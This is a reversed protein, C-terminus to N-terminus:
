PNIKRSGGWHRVIDLLVRFYVGLSIARSCQSLSVIYFLLNSVPVGKKRGNNESLNNSFQVIELSGSDLIADQTIMREQTDNYLLIM